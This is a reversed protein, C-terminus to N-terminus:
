HYDEYNVIHAHGDKFAFVVRWNKNVTIAWLGKRDGGLSHLRWGPIDMDGILCPMSNLWNRQM